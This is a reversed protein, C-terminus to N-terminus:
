PRTLDTPDAMAVTLRKDLKAVPLVTHKRAVDEPVRAVAQPDITESRLDVMALGLNIATLTALDRPLM